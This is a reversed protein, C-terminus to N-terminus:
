RGPPTSHLARAVTRVQNRTPLRDTAKTIAVEIDATDTPGGGLQELVRRTQQPTLAVPGTLAMLPSYGTRPGDDPYNARLWRLVSCFGCRIRRAVSQGLQPVPTVAGPRTYDREHM